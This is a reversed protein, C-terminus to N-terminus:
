APQTKRALLPRRIEPLPSRLKIEDIVHAERERVTDLYAPVEDRHILHYAIVAYVDALGLSPYEQYIEEPTAGELFAQILTLLTVRTDAIRCVGNADFRLPPPIAKIDISTM